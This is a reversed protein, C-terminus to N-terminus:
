ALVGLAATIPKAMSVGLIIALTHLVTPLLPIMTLIPLMEFALAMFPLVALWTRGAAKGAHVGVLVALAAIQL